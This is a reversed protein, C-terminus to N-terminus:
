ENILDFIPLPLTHSIRGYRLWELSNSHDFESIKDNRNNQLKMQKESVCWWVDYLLNYFNFVALSQLFSYIFYKILIFKRMPHSYHWYFFCSRGSFSHILSVIDFPRTFYANITFARVSLYSMDFVFSRPSFTSKSSIFTIFM